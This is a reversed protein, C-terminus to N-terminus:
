KRFDSEYGGVLRYTLPLAVSRYELRGPLHPFSRMPAVRQIARLEAEITSIAKSVVWEKADGSADLFPTRDPDPLCVTKGLFPGFDDLQSSCAWVLASDRLDHLAAFLQPTMYIAYSSFLSDIDRRIRDAMVNLGKFLLRKKEKSAKAIKEDFDLVLKRVSEGYLPKSKVLNEWHPSRIEELSGDSPEEEDLDFVSAFVLHGWLSRVQFLLRCVEDHVVASRSHERIENRRRVLWDILTVSILVGLADAILNPGVAKSLEDGSKFLYLGFIALGTVIALTVIYVSKM